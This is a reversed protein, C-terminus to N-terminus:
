KLGAYGINAKFSEPIESLTARIGRNRDISYRIEVYDKAPFGNTFGYAKRIENWFDNEEIVEFTTIKADEAQFSTADWILNKDRSLKECIDEKPIKLIIQRGGDRETLLRSWYIARTISTTLYIASKLSKLFNTGHKHKKSPLLAEAEKIEYLRDSTTGHYLFRAEKLNMRSEDDNDASMELNRGLKKEIGSFPSKITEMKGNLM